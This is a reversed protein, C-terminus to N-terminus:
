LNMFLRPNVPTGNRHVEYHLHPGTSRGSNGSKAILQGVLVKDNTKVLVSSLHGYLTDLGNGHSVIVCNGYGGKNGAFIVTGAATCKVDSGYAIGIDLGKHFQMPKADAAPKVKSEVKGVAANASDGLKQADSSIPKMSALQLTPKPPIPNVRIGFNSSIYGGSPMGLPVQQLKNQLNMLYESYRNSKKALYIVSSLSDKELRELKENEINKAELFGNIQRLTHDMTSLDNKMKLYDVSDKQTNIKVLNVQYNKDDKETYLKAIIFSQTFVIILLVSLLITTNKPKKFSKKMKFNNLLEFTIICVLFFMILEAAVDYAFFNRFYSRAFKYFIQSIANNFLM